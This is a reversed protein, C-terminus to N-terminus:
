PCSRTYDSQSTFNLSKRQQSSIGSFLSSHNSVPNLWQGMRYGAVAGLLMGPLGGLMSGVFAMLGAVFHSPHSADTSSLGLLVILVLWSASPPHLAASNSPTEGRFLPCGSIGSDLPKSDYGSMSLNTSTINTSVMVECIAYGGLNTLANDNEWIVQRLATTASAQNHIAREVDVNEKLSTLTQALNPVSTILNEALSVAAEDGLTNESIDLQELSSNVLSPWVPILSQASIGTDRLNLNRLATHNLLKQLPTSIDSLFRNGQLDLDTLTTNAFYPLLVAAGVTTMGTHSLDLQALSFNEGPIQSLVTVSDGLNVRAISLSRLRSGALSVTLNEFGTISFPNGALLLSQLSINATLAHTLPLLASDTIGNDNLNLDMLGTRNLLDAITKLGQYGIRNGAWSLTQLLSGTIGTFLNIALSDSIGCYDMILTRLSSNRLGAIFNNLVGGRLDAGSLQLTQLNTRNLHFANIDGFTLANYSLDLDTLSQSANQLGNLTFGTLPNDALTLSNLSTMSSLAEILPYAVQDTLGSRSLGLYRIQSNNYLGAFFRMTNQATLQLGSLDLTGISSLPLYDTLVELYVPDVPLIDTTPRSLNLTSVSNFDTTNLLAIVNHWEQLPWTTWNQRSFDWTTFPGHQQISIFRSYIEDGSRMSSTLANVCDQGELTHNDRPRYDVFEWDCPTCGYNGVKSYAWTKGESQCQQQDQLFRILGMIKTVLLAWLRLRIFLQVPTVLFYGMFHALINKSHGSAWLKYHIFPNKKAIDRLQKAAFEGMKDDRRWYAIDALAQIALWRAFYSRYLISTVIKELEHRTAADLDPDTHIDLLRDLDSNGKFLEQYEKRIGSNIMVADEYKIEKQERYNKQILYNKWRYLQWYYTTLYPFSKIFDEKFEALFARSEKSDIQYFIPLQRPRSIATFLIGSLLASTVVGTWPWYNWRHISATDGGLNSALSANEYHYNQPLGLLLDRLSMQYRNQPNLWYNYNDFGWIGLFLLPYLVQTVAEIGDFMRKVLLEKATPLQELNRERKRVLWQMISQLPPIDHSVWRPLYSQFLLFFSSPKPIEDNNYTSNIAVYNQPRQM